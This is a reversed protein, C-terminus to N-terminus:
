LPKHIIEAELFSRLALAAPTLARDERSALGMTRSLPPDCLTLVALQENGILALKPIVAVGLGAEALKLIMEVAGGNLVLRPGFGAARCAALTADRVYGPAYLLFPEATLELFSVTSRAALPHELAVILVLPEQFLPIIRLKQESAPMTLVALDIEGAEMLELLKESNAEYMCLELGPYRQHFATLIKPLLREGITPPTGLRVQGRRLEGRERMESRLVEVQALITRTHTLLAKGGETLRVNRGVKEFLPGGGLEIELDRLQKTIAPQAVSLEHAARSVHQYRAVTEFYILHRLEM